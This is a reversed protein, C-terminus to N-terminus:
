PLAVIVHGAKFMATATDGPELGLRTASEITIISTVTKGGGIDLVIESNVAGDRRAAIRGTLVNRASVPSAPVGAALIIFPAKVLAYVESGEAIGMESASKETIVATLAQADTLKMEVISNVAGETVKTVTCRYANRTSTQMMINRFLTAPPYALGALERELRAAARDLAEQLRTFSAILARGAPTVTAGGGRRGGPSATVLPDPFLNNLTSIADWAAKYSLGVERAAASISGNRGVAELLRIRDRGIRSAGDRGLSLAATLHTDALQTEDM